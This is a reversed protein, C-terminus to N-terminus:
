SKGGHMSAVLQTCSYLYIPLVEKLPLTSMNIHGPPIAPAEPLHRYLNKLNDAYHSPEITINQAGPLLSGAYGYTHPAEGRALFATVRQENAKWYGKGEGPMKSLHQMINEYERQSQVWRLAYIVARKRASFTTGGECPTEAHSAPSAVEDWFGTEILAAIAAGKSEPPAFKLCDGKTKLIQEMLAVRAEKIQWSTILASTIRDGSDIVRNIGYMGVLLPIACFAYYDDALMIQMLQVYDANRLMYVLCPMFEAMIAPGDVDFSMAGKGGTGWCLGGSIHIRVKGGKWSFSLQGGGGIGAQATAGVAVKALTSYKDEHEPNLWLLTGSVNAGAEVGAFMGLEAGGCLPEDAAKTVDVKRWFGYGQDPIAKVPLGKARDDTISVGAEVGLSAGISGSLALEIDFRLTGLIGIGGGPIKAPDLPYCIKVGVKDPLHLTGHSKAEALALNAYFRTKGSLETIAKRKGTRIDVEFPNLVGKMSAGYAWRLLQAQADFAICSGEYPSHKLSDNLERAWQSWIGANDDLLKVEWATMSPKLKALQSKLKEPDIEQRTRRQGDEGTYEVMKLFSKGGSKQESDNLRYRRWHSGIKDSRVYVYKAGNKGGRVEILEMLGIANEKSSEDLLTTEPLHEAPSLATLEARLAQCAEDLHQYEAKLLFQYRDRERINAWGPTIAGQILEEIRQLSDARKALYHTLRNSEQELDHGDCQDVALLTESDPHFYLRPYSPVMVEKRVCGPGTVMSYSGDWPIVREEM